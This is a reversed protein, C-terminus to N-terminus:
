FAVLAMFSLMIMRHQGKAYHQRHANLFMTGNIVYYIPFIYVVLVYLAGEIVDGRSNFTFVNGTIFNQLILVAYVALVTQNVRKGIVRSRDVRGSRTEYSIVYFVFSYAAALSVVCNATQILMLLAWPLVRRVPSGLVVMCLVDMLDAATVFLAMRRFSLNVITNDTYRLLLFVCLAIDIPLIALELAINYLM